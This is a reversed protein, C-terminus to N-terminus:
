ADYTPLLGFRVCRGINHNQTRSQCHAPLLMKYSGGWGSMQLTQEVCKEFDLM